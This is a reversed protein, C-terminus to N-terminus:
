NPSYGFFKNGGGHRPSARLRSSIMNVVIELDADSDPDICTEQSRSAFNSM